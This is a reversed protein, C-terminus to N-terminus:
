SGTQRIEDIRELIEDRWAAVVRLAKILGKIEHFDNLNSVGEMEDRARSILEELRAWFETWAPTHAIERLVEPAQGLDM